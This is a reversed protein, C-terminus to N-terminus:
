LSVHHFRSPVTDNPRFIGDLAQYAQIRLLAADALNASNFRASYLSAASPSVAEPYPQAHIAGKASLNRPALSIGLTPVTSSVDVQLIPWGSRISGRSPFQEEVTWVRLIAILRSSLNQSRPQPESRTRTLDGGKMLVATM